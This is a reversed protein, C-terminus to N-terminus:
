YNTCMIITFQVEQEIKHNVQYRLVMELGASLVVGDGNKACFGRWRLAKRQEM